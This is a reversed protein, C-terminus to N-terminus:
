YSAAIALGGVDELAEKLYQKHPALKFRFGNETYAVRDGRYLLVPPTVFDYTLALKRGIPMSRVAGKSSVLSDFADKSSLFLNQMTQVIGEQVIIHEWAFPYVTSGAIEITKRDLGQRSVRIPLRSIYVSERIKTSPSEMIVYGLKNGLNRFDWRPDNIDRKDSPGDGILPLRRFQLWVHNKNGGAADVYVPYNDYIVVSNVLKQHAEEKTDYM